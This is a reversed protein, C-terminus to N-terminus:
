TRFTAVITRLESSMRALDGAARQAQAASTSTILVAKAVSGITEAIENTGTAAETVSRNMENTTATQEEVAAAITVQYDNISAIIQSIEAIASVAHSTDAQIAEVRKSIDETARATEQALDKVESAVVAFGKGADGARAAEITANLALLNTQEAISTITKIVSGIEASSAGLKGVADTTAVAAIVARGAVGAAASSSQAIERIAAGMEESGASVTRVNTSVQHASGAVTGAQRSADEASAAIQGSTTTLEASAGALSGASGDITQVAARMHTIASNLARAMVGTEDRSAVDVQRTLDGTAVGLLVEQVAGVTRVISRRVLVGLALAAALGLVLFLLMTRVGTTKADVARKAQAAAAKTRVAELADLADAAKSIIPKAINVYATSWAVRDDKTSLPLLTSKYLTVFQAWLGDFTDLLPSDGALSKFKALDGDLEAQDDSIDVLRKAKTPADPAAALAQVDMRVKIEQQHAHGLVNDAIIVQRYLTDAQRAASTMGQYGAAAVGLAVVVALGLVTFIKTGIKRDAVLLQWLGRTGGPAHGDAGDRGDVM